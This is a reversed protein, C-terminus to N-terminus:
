MQTVAFASIIVNKMMDASTILVTVLCQKPYTPTFEIQFALWIPIDPHVKKINYQLLSFDGDLLQNRNCKVTKPVKGGCEPPFFSQYALPYLLAEPKLYPQQVTSNNETSNNEFLSGQDQHGEHNKDVEEKDSRKMKKPPCYISPSQLDKPPMQQFCDPSQQRAYKTVFHKGDLQAWEWQTPFALRLKEKALQRVLKNHRGGIFAEAKVDNWRDPNAVFKPNPDKGLLSKGYNGAFPKYERGTIYTWMRKHADLDQQFIAKKKRKLDNKEIELGIDSLAAATKSSYMEIHPLVPSNVPPPVPASSRQPQQLEQLQQPPQLGRLQQAQQLEQLQQAVTNQLWEPVAQKTTNNTLQSTPMKSPKSPIKLQSSRLRPSVTEQIASRPSESSAPPVM